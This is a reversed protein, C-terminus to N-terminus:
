IGHKRFFYRSILERTTYRFVTLLGIMCCSGSSPVNQLIKVAVMHDRIKPMKEVLMGCTTTVGKRLSRLYLLLAKSLSKRFVDTCVRHFCFRCCAPWFSKPLRQKQESQVMPSMAEEGISMKAYEFVVRGQSIVVGFPKNQKTGIITSTPREPKSIASM